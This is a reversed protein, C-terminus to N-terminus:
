SSFSSGWVGLTTCEPFPTAVKLAFLPWFTIFITLESGYIVFFIKKSHFVNYCNVMPANPCNAPKMNQQNHYKVTWTPAGKRAGWLCRKQREVGWLSLAMNNPAVLQPPFIDLFPGLFPTCFTTANSPPCKRPAPPRASSGHATGSRVRAYAVAM